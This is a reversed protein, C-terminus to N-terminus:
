FAEHVAESFQQWLVREKGMRRRHVPVLVLGTGVRLSDVQVDGVVTSSPNVKTHQVYVVPFIRTQFRSAMTSLTSGSTRTMTTTTM